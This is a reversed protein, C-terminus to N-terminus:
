HLRQGSNLMNNLQMMRCRRLYAHVTKAEHFAEPVRHAVDLGCLTLIYDMPEWEAM